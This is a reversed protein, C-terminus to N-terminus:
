ASERTLCRVAAQRHPQPQAMATQHALRLSRAAYAEADDVYERTRRQGAAQMQNDRAEAEALRTIFDDLHGQDRPPSSHRPAASAQTAWAGGGFPDEDDPRRTGRIPRAAQQPALAPNLASPQDFVGAVSSSDFATNAYVAGGRQQRREDTGPVRGGAAPLRSHDVLPGDDLYSSVVRRGPM